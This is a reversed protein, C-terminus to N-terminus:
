LTQDPPVFPTAPPHDSLRRWEIHRRGAELAAAAAKSAATIPRPELNEFDRLTFTPVETAPTTPTPSRTSPRPPKRPVVVAQATAARKAPQMLDYRRGVPVSHPRPPQPSSRQPVAGPSRWDMGLSLSVSIAARPAERVPARGNRGIALHPMAGAASSTMPRVAAFPKHMVAGDYDAPGPTREGSYLFKQIEDQRGKAQRGKAAKYLSPEWALYGPAQRKDTRSPLLRELGGPPEYAGPGPTEIRRDELRQLEGLRWESGEALIYAGTSYGFPAPPAPSKARRPARGGPAVLSGRASGSWERGLPAEVRRGYGAFHYAPGEGYATHPM